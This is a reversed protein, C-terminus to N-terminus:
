GPIQDRSMDPLSDEPNVQMEYSFDSKKDWAGYKNPDRINRCKDRKTNDM